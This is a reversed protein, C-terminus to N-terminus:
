SIHVANCCICCHLQKRVGIAVVFEPVMPLQTEVLTLYGSSTTSADGKLGRTPLLRESKSCRQSSIPVSISPIGGLAGTM